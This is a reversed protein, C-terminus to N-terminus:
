SSVCNQYLGQLNQHEVNLGNYKKEWSTCGSMLSVAAVIMVACLIKTRVNM